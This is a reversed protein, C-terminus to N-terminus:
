SRPSAGAGTMGMAREESRIRTWLVRANACGFVLATMWATHILPLSAFELTVALYNPHRMWRYPGTTIRPEGPVHVIRTSWREGLASIAWVRLGTAAGFLVMMPLGLIPIWPRDLVWVELPCAALFGVHVAVMVPYHGSAVEVAGRSRQIAINRASLRLELLRTLGVVAVLCTYLARSDFPLDM